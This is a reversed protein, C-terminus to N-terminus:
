PVRSGPRATVSASIGAARMANLNQTNDHFTIQETDSDYVVFGKARGFRPDVPSDWTAGESTVAIKM